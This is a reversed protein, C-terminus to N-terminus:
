KGGPTLLHKYRKWSVCINVIRNVLVSRAVLRIRRYFERYDRNREPSREDIEVIHPTTMPWPLRNACKQRHMMRIAVAFLPMAGTVWSKADRYNSRARFSLERRASSGGPYM